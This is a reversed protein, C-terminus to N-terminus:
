IYTIDVDKLWKTELLYKIKKVVNRRIELEVPLTPDQHAINIRTGVLFTIKDSDYLMRIIKEAPGDPCNHNDTDEESLIREVKSLTLIGETILDIGEMRSSPPLDNGSIDMDDIDLTIKRGTERSVINATTGGCIIKRGPFEMVLKTLNADNKEDFPPGTCVLLNRPKRMYIVCCSTDDKLCYGDNKEAETVIRRALETASVSPNRTVCERIFERAGNEWGFPMNRRGMGSQSVGDSFFILRDEKEMPFESLWLATNPMDDREVPIRKKPVDVFKGERFLYYAPTEYEAIRTNGFCDIDCMCFTSYSIKRVEDRPLTKLITSAAAVIDENMMAFNLLMTSTMTSLVSAKIGSGLGDSMVSIVRGEEKFKHSVFTDGCVMNDGKNKQFCDVEIFAGNVRM